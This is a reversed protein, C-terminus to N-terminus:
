LFIVKVKKGKKNDVIVAPHKEFPYIIVSMKLKSLEEDSFKEGRWIFSIEEIWEIRDVLNNIISSAASDKEFIDKCFNEWRSDDKKLEKLIGNSEEYLLIQPILSVKKKRNYEETLENFREDIIQQMIEKAM